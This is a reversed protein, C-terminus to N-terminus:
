WKKWTDLLEAPTCPPTLGFDALLRKVIPVTMEDVYDVGGDAIEYSMRNMADFFPKNAVLWEKIHQTGGRKLGHYAKYGYGKMASQPTKYGHGRCDDVVLGSVEDYVVYRGSFKYGIDDSKVVKIGKQLM